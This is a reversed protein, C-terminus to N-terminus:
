GKVAGAALGSVLLRQLFLFIILTPLTALVSASMVLNWQTTYQGFFNALGIPVTKLSNDSILTLAFMFDNWSRIFTFIATAAVGPWAIPLLVQFITRVTSCGDILASDDLERPVSELYGLLMYVSFPISIAIYTIILGGYSNILGLRHYILYIPTTIIIFPVLQSFVIIILLGYRFRFRRRSFSYAALFSVIVSLVTAPLAVILSNAIYRPFDSALLTKYNAFTISGAFLQFKKSFLASEPRISTLVVWVFPFVLVALAAFTLLVILSDKICQLQKGSTM